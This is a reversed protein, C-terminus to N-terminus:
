VSFGFLIAIDSEGSRTLWFRSLFGRFDGYESLKYFYKFFCFEMVKGNKWFFTSNFLRSSLLDGNPGFDEWFGCKVFFFFVGIEWLADTFSFTTFHWM